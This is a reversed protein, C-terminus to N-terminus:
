DSAALAAAEDAYFQVRTVKGDVLRCVWAAPAEIDMGSAARGHVTGLVLVTSDDLDRFENGELHFSEWDEAMDRNFAKFGEAGRYVTGELVAKMPHLEAEPHLVQLVADVDRRNWADLGGRVIEVNSQSV